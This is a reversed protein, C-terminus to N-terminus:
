LRISARDILSQLCVRRSISAATKLFRKEHRQSCGPQVSYSGERGSAYHWSVTMTGVDSMGGCWSRESGAVRRFDALNMAISEFSSVSSQVVTTPLRGESNRMSLLAKGSWNITVESFFFPEMSAPGSRTIAIVRDSGVLGADARKDSCAALLSLGGLAATATRTFGWSM